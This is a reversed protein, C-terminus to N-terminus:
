KGFEQKVTEIMSDVASSDVHSLKLDDVYWVVTFQKGNVVKNVVCFNYPNREFGNEEILFSSM